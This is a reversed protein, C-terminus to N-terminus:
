GASPLVEDTGWRSTHRFMQGEPKLPAVLNLMTCGETREDQQGRADIFRIADFSIRNQHTRCFSKWNLHQLRFLCCVDIESIQVQVVGRQQGILQQILLAPACFYLGAGLRCRVLLLKGTILV